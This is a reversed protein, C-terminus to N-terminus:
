GGPHIWHGRPLAAIFAAGNPTGIGTMTDYGKATVQQTDPRK